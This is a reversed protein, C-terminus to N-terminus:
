QTACRVPKFGAASSPEVNQSCTLLKFKHFERIMACHLRPVPCTHTSTLPTVQALLLASVVLVHVYIPRAPRISPMFPKPRVSWFLGMWITPPSADAGHMHQGSSKARPLEFCCACTYSVLEFAAAACKFQHGGARALLHRGATLQM